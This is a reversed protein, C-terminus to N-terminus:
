RAQRSLLFPYTVAVSVGGRPQPFAWRKLKGVICSEVAQAKAPAGLTSRAVNARAVRGSPGIDFRVAVRGRLSPETQLGMEYCYVVQGLNREIVAEVQARELGEGVDSDGPEVGPGLGEGGKGWGSGAPGNGHPGTGKWSGVVTAEGYGAGQAGGGARGRTGYGGSGPAPSGDGFPAAILGKGYMANSLGMGKGHGLGGLGRGGGGNNGFGGHGKGGAGSGPETGVARLNLGGRGGNGGAVREARDLAGLAGIQNMTRENTGFGKAGPSKFGGGGRPNRATRSVSPVVVRRVTERENGLPVVPTAPKQARTDARSNTEANVKSSRAVMQEVVATPLLTITESAAKKKESGPWFSSIGVALLMTAALLSLAAELSRKPGLEPETGLEFAQPFKTTGVSLRLVGRGELTLPTKRIEDPSTRALVRFPIKKESLSKLSAVTEIRRSDRREIVYVHDASWRFSRVIEGRTNELVFEAAASERAAEQYRRNLM